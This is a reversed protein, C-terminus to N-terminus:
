STPGFDTGKGGRLEALEARRKKERERKGEKSRGKEEGARDGSGAKVQAASSPLTLPTARGRAGSIKKIPRAIRGFYRGARCLVSGDEAFLGGELGGM